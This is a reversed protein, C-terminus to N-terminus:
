KLHMSIRKGKVIELETPSLSIDVSNGNEHRFEVSSELLPYVDIQISGQKAQGTIQEEITYGHGLPMAVFQFLFILGPIEQLVYSPSPYFPIGPSRSWLCHLYWRAVASPARHCLRAEQRFAASQRTSFRHHCQNRIKLGLGSSSFNDAMFFPSSLAGGVSIKIACSKSGTFDIWLAERQFM